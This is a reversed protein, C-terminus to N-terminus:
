VAIKKKSGLMRLKDAFLQICPGATLATIVTVIGAKGGLLLGIVIFSIDFSIKVIRYEKKLKEQLVLVVGTFPDVGINVVIFIAIGLYLLLCGTAAFIIRLLFSNDPVLYRYITSGFSVCLGYPVFYVVTGISVFKRGIFLLLVVLSINVINSVTGLQDVSLHFFNRIGDYVIGVSDNGLGALNNFAVGTGILLVGILAYFIKSFYQKEMRGKKKDKERDKKKKNRTM